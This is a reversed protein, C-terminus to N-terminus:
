AGYVGMGTANDCTRESGMSEHWSMHLHNGYIPVGTASDCAREPGM